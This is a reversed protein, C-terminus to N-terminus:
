ATPPAQNTTTAGLDAPPPQGMNSMLSANTYIPTPDQDVMQRSQEWQRTAFQNEQHQIQSITTFPIPIQDEILTVLAVEAAHASLWSAMNIEDRLNQQCAQVTAQDGLAAATAILMSYSAIEFNEAVVDDRANRALTDKRSGSLVGQLKGLAGTLANKGGSPQANYRNLCAELRQFHQQTELLHQHIKAQVVPFDAADKEHEQLVDVLHKEVACMDQLYEILKRQLDANNAINGPTNPQMM